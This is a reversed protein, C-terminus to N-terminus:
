NLIKSAVYINNLGWMFKSKKIFKLPSTNLYRVIEPLPMCYEEDDEMGRETDMDKKGLLSYSFHRWKHTLFQTIPEGETMILNGGPKLVRALESFEQSRVNKPIHGGVAILTISDFSNDGFPLKTLDKIINEVGDYEFVDIGVGNEIGIYNNIFLNGRGCGVDLVRGKCYKAVQEFREDRLSTLFFNGNEPLFLARVPFFLDDLIIRFFNRKIRKM